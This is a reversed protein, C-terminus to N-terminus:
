RNPTRYGRAMAFVCIRRSYADLGNQWQRCRSGRMTGALGMAATTATVAAAGGEAAASSGRRAAASRTRPGPVPPDAHSQIRHAAQERGSIPWTSCQKLM